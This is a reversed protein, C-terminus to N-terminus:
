GLSYAQLAELSSTSAQDIPADYKQVSALSEGLKKRMNTASEGLAKLVQERSDAEVQQSDLAEGTPCNLANLGIAYHSGLESISGTLVAKSGTRQCVERAIDQTLREDKPRGMLRLQEGVKQDSSM